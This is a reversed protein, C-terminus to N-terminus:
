YEAVFVAPPGKMQDAGVLKERLVELKSCLTWSQSSPFGAFWYFYTKRGNVAIELWDCVIELKDERSSLHTLFYRDHIEWCKLILFALYRIRVSNIEHM